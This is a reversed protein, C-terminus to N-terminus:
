VHLLKLLQDRSFAPLEMARRLLTLNDESHEVEKSYLRAAEQISGIPKVLAAVTLVSIVTAAAQRWIFGNCAAKLWWRFLFYVTLQELAVAHVTLDPCELDGLAKPFQNGLHEMARMLQRTMTM